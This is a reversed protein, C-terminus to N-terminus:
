SFNQYYLLLWQFFLWSIVIKCTKVFWMKDLIMKCSQDFDKWSSSFPRNGEITHFFVRAWIYILRYQWFASHAARFFACFVADCFIACVIKRNVAWIHREWHTFDVGFSWPYSDSKVIFSYSDLRIIGILLILQRSFVLM